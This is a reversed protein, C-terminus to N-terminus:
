GSVTGIHRPVYYTTYGADELLFPGNAPCNVVLVYWLRIVNGVPMMLMLWPM